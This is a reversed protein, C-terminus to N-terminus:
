GRREAAFEEGTLVGSCRPRSRAGFAGRRGCDLSGDDAGSRETGAEAGDQDCATRDARELGRRTVPLSTARPFM